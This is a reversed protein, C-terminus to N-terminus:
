CVTKISSRRVYPDRWVHQQGAAPSKRVFGAQRKEEAITRILNLFDDIATESTQIHVVM